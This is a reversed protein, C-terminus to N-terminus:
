KKGPSTRSFAATVTTARALTIRCRPKTGRCPGVWRALQWGAAPKAILTVPGPVFAHRCRAGCSIGAPVSTVAGSGVKHVTLLVVSKAFNATVTTDGAVVFSCTPGPATCGGGVWGGFISGPDATATLTVTQGQLVEGSCTSGCDLVHAGDQVSGSGAGLKVVMVHRAPVVYTQFFFDADGALGNNSVWSRGGAYAGDACPTGVPDKVSSGVDAEWALDPAVEPAAVVIAYQKGAEVRAPTSFSVTVDAYTPTQPLTLSTSVLPPSVAPRGDGGVPAIAVAVRSTRVRLPIVVDTLGGTTAATFTQASWSAADDPVWGTYRCASPRAPNSQDLAANPAVAVASPGSAGSAVVTLALGIGAV